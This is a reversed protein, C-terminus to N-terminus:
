NGIMGENSKAKGIGAVRPVATRNGARLLLGNGVAKIVFGRASLFEPIAM